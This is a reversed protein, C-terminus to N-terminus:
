MEMKRGSHLGFYWLAVLVALLLAINADGLFALIKNVLSEASLFSRSIVSSTILFVPLM